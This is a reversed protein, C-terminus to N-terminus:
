AAGDVPKGCVGVYLVLDGAPLVLRRAIAGEFFGGLPVTCLGVSSSLLCLNQMLHGAELLLFRHGREAYKEAVREGDGVLIWLLAGGELLQMSPVVERWGDREAGAGLQALAHARRDYHYVGAPLWGDTFTVLYLELAQLGGASPVPGRAHGDTAAHSFQMVRSLLTRSPLVSDLRQVSHRRLLARDLPPWWRPRLRRLTWRPYGPYSRPEPVAETPDFASIRERWEPFSTRDLETWRFFADPKSM